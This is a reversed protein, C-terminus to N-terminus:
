LYFTDKCKVCKPLLSEIKYIYCLLCNSLESCDGTFAAGSVINLNSIEIGAMVPMIFNKPFNVKTRVM